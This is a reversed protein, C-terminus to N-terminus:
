TNDQPNNSVSMLQCEKGRVFAFISFHLPLLHCTTPLYLLIVALATTLTTIFITIIINIAIAIAIAIAM